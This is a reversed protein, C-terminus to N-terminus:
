AGRCGNHMVYPTPDTWETPSFQEVLSAFKTVGSPAAVRAPPDVASPGRVRPEGWEDLSSDSDAMLLLRLLLWSVPVASTRALGHRDQAM